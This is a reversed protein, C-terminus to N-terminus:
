GEDGDDGGDSSEAGGEDTTEGDDASAEGIVETEQEVDPEEEVIRPPNLTAITVEELHEALFTVGEPATITDLQITDGVVM